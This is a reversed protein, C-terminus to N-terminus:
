KRSGIPEDRSKLCNFFNTMHDTLPKGKYAEVLANEPLPNATMDEVPKGTLRERNAVYTLVLLQNVRETVPFPHNRDGGVLQPPREAGDAQAQM